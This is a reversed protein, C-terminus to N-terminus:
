QRVLEVRRNRARGVLTSNSDVPFADGYGNTVLRSPIIHFGRTLTDKVAAKV